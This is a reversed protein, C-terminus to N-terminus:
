SRSARSVRESEVLGTSTQASPSDPKRTRCASSCALGALDDILVTISTSVGFRPREGAPHGSQVSSVGPAPFASGAYLRDPLRNKSFNFPIGEESIEPRFYMLIQRSMGRAAGREETM